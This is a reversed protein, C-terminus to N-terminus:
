HGHDAELKDAQIAYLRVLRGGIRLPKAREGSGDPSPLAGAEHLTDLARRFDFGRLAERMSEANFLYIRSGGEDRWWGARDRVPVDGTCGANSFRADGNREIFAAVRELIDRREGNGRGRMSQWLRFGEAAAAIADGQPWGTIGYDTAVEGALAFLAFRSAARKDQGEGDSAAFEPRAKIAELAACFDGDDRTLKQLFARGAYGYNTAAATKIADSFVSGSPMGHLDDWAGFKRAAPIDLLRVSQGAKARQGGDAMATAITCEGSSLVVCRWRMVGRAAGSRTARQKGRGNGLAYVIAGVDRPDCESIEDLALLGDNFLAAAGELGNSTTRWSRKYNCGGWVSCGAEILTTKGTSSDAVYHLGGSEAHCRGLLAGAMAASLALTLLPNGVARAAIEAQWGALTGGTTYEDTGREGSQFIVGSAKPGIVVDPLVFSGGCWGVQTACHMRRKPERWQLYQGLLRHAVPDIHVGMALLEGRLDDGAGRLLDMPMSWERWRGTTNRFRLLRGFNSDSSDFTVAEIHLPSCVWQQTTTPLAKDTGPKAGFHWVGPRYKMGDAEHWNDFVVFAPREELQPVTATVTTVAQNESPTVVFGGGNNAQVDTVHTVGTETTEALPAVIAAVAALGCHAAMDNFDTARDPRDSGFDPVALLGAVARAAETAKTLGPNGETAHDDDACVILPLDPFRERMARSVAVLNGANFSVAVPLGTAEHVTAGTAVGEVVCLAKADEPKGISFYGGAVRGGTLFRKAGDTAIRQLSVLEGNARVPVVLHEGEVRLGHPKIGKRVLYAHGAAALKASGWIAAAESAADARQKAEEAERLRRMAAIRARQATQEAATWKRGVDGCWTESLGARWCGFSGAPIGEVHMVYWGATDGRKGNSAFRHLAGDATVHEPAELGAATIAARFQAICDSGFMNQTRGQPGAIATAPSRRKWPGTM